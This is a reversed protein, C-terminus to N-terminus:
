LRSDIYAILNDFNELTVGLKFLDAEAIQYGNEHVFVHPHGKKWIYISQIHRLHAWYRNPNFFIM